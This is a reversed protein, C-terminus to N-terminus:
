VVQVLLFVFAVRVEREVRGLADNARAAHAGTFLYLAGEGEGNLTTAELRFDGGAVHQEHLGLADGAAGADLGARGGGQGLVRDDLVALRLTGDDGGAGVAADAAAELGL